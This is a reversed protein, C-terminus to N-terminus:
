LKKLQENIKDTNKKWIEILNNQKGIEEEIGMKSEDDTTKLKTQLYKKRDQHFELKQLAEKLKKEHYKQIRKTLFNL